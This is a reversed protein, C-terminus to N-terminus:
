EFLSVKLKLKAVYCNNDLELALSLLHIHFSSLTKDWIKM